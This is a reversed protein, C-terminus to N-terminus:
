KQVTLGGKPMWRNLLWGKNLPWIDFGWYWQRNLSSFIFSGILWGDRNLSWLWRKATGLNYLVLPLQTKQVLTKKYRGNEYWRSVRESWMTCINTGCLCLVSKSYRISIKSTYCSTPKIEKRLPYWLLLEAFYTDVSCWLNL